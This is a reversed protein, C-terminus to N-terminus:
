CWRVYNPTSSPAFRHRLTDGAHPQFCKGTVASPTSSRSASRTVSRSPLPRARTATIAALLSVPTICGTAPSKADKGRLRRTAAPPRPSPPPCSRDRHRAKRNGSAKPGCAPRDALRPRAPPARRHATPAAFSRRRGASLTQAGPVSFREPMAPKPAAAFATSASRSSIARTVAMRSWKSAASFAANGPHPSRRRRHAGRQAIGGIDRQRAKCGLIDHDREIQVAHHDLEPEDQEEPLIAGECTSDAIPTASSRAPAEMRTLKPQFEVSSSASATTADSTFSAARTRARCRTLGDIDDAAWSVLSM